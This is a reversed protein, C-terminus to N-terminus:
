STSSGRRSRSALRAWWLDLGMAYAARPRLRGEYYHSLFEAKYTAMDVNVPCEGKCGKCALCLDLAENVDEDRWGDSSRRARRLMEFLLRARGRTSHMEERTAMYSPCMTGGEHRRCQGVGVCRLGARAFSATTTPFSSTRDRRTPWGRRRAAPGADLPYPDVVKGPNMKGGPDWIAKFERFAEVLESASCRPCSSAARSATATSAPSRAATPSWWTPRRRWSPATARPNGGRTRFDFDIRSHVCGQGFHGYFRPTTATATSCRRLDRLYDGIREPPM